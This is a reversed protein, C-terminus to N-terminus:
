FLFRTEIASQSVSKSSLTQNNFPIFSQRQIFAISAYDTVRYAFLAEFLSNNLSALDNFSGIGKKDYTVHFDIRKWVEDSLVLGTRVRGDIAETLGDEWHVYLTFYNWLNLDTGVLYGFYGDDLLVLSDYKYPREVWYFSDFYHPVFEKGLFRFEALLEFWSYRFDTGASIGQGRGSILGWDVYTKVYVDEKQVLTVAADLGFLTVSKSAGNDKPPGSEESSYQQQPDLDTVATGGIELQSLWPSQLGAFPRFFLRAGIVDWDLVDNVMSHIGIYPFDIAGADFDFLFGRQLIYPNFLDNNFDRVLMGQGMYYSNFEGILGYIPDGLEAYEVYQLKYFWDYWTTWNDPKGDNDLDRLNFDGDFELTFDFGVRWLGRSLKPYFGLKQYGETIGDIDEYSVLGITIGMDFELKNKENKESVEEGNQGLLRTSVALVFLFAVLIRKCM